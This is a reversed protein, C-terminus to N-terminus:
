NIGDLWLQLIRNRWANHKLAVFSRGKKYSMAM